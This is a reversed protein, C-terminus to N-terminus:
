RSQAGSRESGEPNKGEREFLLSAPPVVERMRRGTLIPQPACHRRGRQPKGREPGRGGRASLTASLSNHASWVGTTTGARRNGLAGLRPLCTKRGRRPHRVQEARIVTM